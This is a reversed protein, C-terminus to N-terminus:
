KHKSFLTDGTGDTKVRFIDEKGDIKYYIWNDLVNIDTVAKDLLLQIQEGNKKMKYIHYHDSPNLYYIWDEDLILSLVKQNSIKMEKGTQKDVKILHEDMDTYYLFQEDVEDIIQHYSVTDNLKKIHEGNLSMSYLKGKSGEKNIPKYFFIQEYDIVFSGTIEWKSTFIRLKDTGDLNMKYLGNKLSDYYYIHDHKVQVYEANKLLRERGTGDLKVRYLMPIDSFPMVSYYVWEKMVQINGFGRSALKVEKTGGDTKAIMENNTFPITSANFKMYVLLNDQKAVFGHNIMNGYSNGTVNPMEPAEFGKTREHDCGMVLVLLVFVVIYKKM